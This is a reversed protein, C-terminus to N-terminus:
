RFRFRVTGMVNIPEGPYVQTDYLTSAYYEADTVNNINFAYEVPGRTYGTPRAERLLGAMM